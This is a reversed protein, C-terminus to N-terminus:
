LAPEHEMAYYKSFTRPNLDLSYNVIVHIFFSLMRLWGKAIEQIWSILDHSQAFGEVLERTDRIKFFFELELRLDIAKM